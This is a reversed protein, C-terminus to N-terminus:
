GGLYIKIVRKDNVAEEPRGSFIVEGKDLVIVRDSVEMVASMVHEVVLLSVGLERKIKKLLQTVSKIETPTLGAAVEDCLILKPKCALARGLELRRQDATTLNGARNNAKDFLGIFKLIDNAKESAEKIKKINDRGYMLSVMINEKVTLDRLPKVIQFTRAIGLKCIVHPKLGTINVGEFIVHGSNPKYFGSIINILTTKGAGNPGILSLIEDKKITLSVNNLAQLGGFKKSVKRVELLRM